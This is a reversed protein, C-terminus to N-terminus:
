NIKEDFSGDNVKKIFEKADLEEITIGAAKCTGAIEKLANKRNNSLLSNAKVDAIKLIQDINLNGVPTGDGTGKEIGIEKKLLAATPPSGVEIEFSKTETDVIVKVPIKMGEMTATKENIKTVVDNINLGMPGLAPGLPPGGNAHGGEVLSEITEKM